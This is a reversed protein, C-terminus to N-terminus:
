IIDVISFVPEVRLLEVLCCSSEMRGVHDGSYHSYKIIQSLSGPTNMILQNMMNYLNIVLTRM